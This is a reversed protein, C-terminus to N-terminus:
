TSRSNKEAFRTAREAHDATETAPQTWGQSRWLVNFV